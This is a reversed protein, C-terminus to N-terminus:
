FVTHMRECRQGRQHEHQNNAVSMIALLRLVVGVDKQRMMDHIVFELANKSYTQRERHRESIFYM